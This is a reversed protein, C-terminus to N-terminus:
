NSHRLTRETEEELVLHDLARTHSACLGCTPNCLGEKGTVNPQTKGPCCLNEFMSKWSEKEQIGLSCVRVCVCGFGGKM